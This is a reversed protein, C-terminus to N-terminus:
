RRWVRLEGNLGLRHLMKALRKGDKGMVTLDVSWSGADDLLALAADIDSDPAVAPVPDAAPLRDTERHEPAVPEIVLPERDEVLDVEPEPQRELADLIAAQEPDQEAIAAQEAATIRGVLVKGGFGDDSLHRENWTGVAAEIDLVDQETVPLASPVALRDGFDPEADPADDATAAPQAAEPVSDTGAEVAEVQPEVADAAPEERNIHIIPLTEQAARDATPDLVWRYSHGNRNPRAEQVRYGLWDLIQQVRQTGAGSSGRFGPAGKLLDSVETTWFTPPNGLAYLAGRVYGIPRNTPRAGGYAKVANPVVLHEIPGTPPVFPEEVTQKSAKIAAKLAKTDALPWQLGSKLVRRRINHLVNVDSPSSHILTWKGDPFVLKQVGKGRAEVQVGQRELGKILADVDKRVSTATSPM